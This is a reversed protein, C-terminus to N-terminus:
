LAVQLVNPELAKAWAIGVNESGRDFAIGCRL